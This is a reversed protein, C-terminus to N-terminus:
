KVEVSIKNETYKEDRGDWVVFKLIETLSVRPQFNNGSV